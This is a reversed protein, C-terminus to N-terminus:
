CSHMGTPHTGGAWQDYRTTDWACGGKVLCVGKKVCAGEGCVVGKGRVGGKAVCAGGKVMCAGKWWAHGGEGRMGGEGRVGGRHVSLCRYFCLRRLSRKCATIIKDHDNLFCWYCLRVQQINDRLQILTLLSTVLFRELLIRIGRKGVTRTTWLPCTGTCHRGLHVLKFMDSLPLPDKYPWTWHMMPIPLPWTPDGGWPCFSSFVRSFVNGERLKIPPRYYHFNTSGTNLDTQLVLKTQQM